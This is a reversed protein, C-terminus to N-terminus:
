KGKKKPPAVPEKGLSELIEHYMTQIHNMGAHFATELDRDAFEFHQEGVDLLLIHTCGVEKVPDPERISMSFNM